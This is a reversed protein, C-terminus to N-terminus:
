LKKSDIHSQIENLIEPHIFAGLYSDIITQGNPIQKITQAILEYPINSKIMSMIQLTEDLFAGNEFNNNAKSQVFSCWKASLENDGLIATGATEWYGIKSEAEEKALDQILEIVEHKEM